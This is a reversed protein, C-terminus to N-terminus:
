RQAPLRRTPSWRRPCPRRPCLRRPLRAPPLPPPGPQHLQWPSKHRVPSSRRLVWWLTGAEHWHPQPQPQPQPPRQPLAPRRLLSVDLRSPPLLAPPPLLLQKRSHQLRHPLRWAKRGTPPRCLRLALRKKTATAALHPRARDTRRRAGSPLTHVPPPLLCAAVAAPAPAPAPAPAAEGLQPAPARPVGAGPGHPVVIVVREPPPVEVVPRVAVVVVVVVLSGAGVVLV